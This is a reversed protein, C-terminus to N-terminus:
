RHDPDAPPANDTSGPKSLDPIVINGVTATGTLERDEPAYPSDSERLQRYEISGDNQRGGTIGFSSLAVYGPSSGALHKGPAGIKLTGTFGLRSGTADLKTDRWRRTARRLATEDAYKPILDGLIRNAEDVHESTLQANIADRATVYRPEGREAALAIWAMARPLDVPVGQGRSYIVSLNYQAPKYAWSASTQYMEIAFKTQDKEFAKVGKKFFFIGPRGSGEPGTFAMRSGTSRGSEYSASSRSSTARLSTADHQALAVLPILLALVSITRAVHIPYKMEIGQNARSIPLM